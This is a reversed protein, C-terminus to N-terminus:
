PGFVCSSGFSDRGFVCQTSGAGHVPASADPRATDTAGADRGTASADQGALTVNGCAAAALLLWLSLFRLM